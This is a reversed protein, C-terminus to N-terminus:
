SGEGEGSREDLVTGLAEFPHPADHLLGRLEKTWADVDEVTKAPVPAGSGILELVSTLRPLLDSLVARVMAAASINSANAAQVLSAHLDDPLSIMMRVTMHVLTTCM